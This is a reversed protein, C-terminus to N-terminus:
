ADTPSPDAATVEIGWSAHFSGGPPLAIIDVGSRLANPPCTMPEVAVAARHDDPALWDGTYCMVHAFVAEGWVVVVGGGRAPTFRARWRGDAEAVLDTFSDNFRVGALPIGAALSPVASEEVPEAGVPLMREDLVLHRRAPLSLRSGDLGAPGPALYPHFGLGFPATENGPNHATTAVTLTGPGVSYEVEIELWWPYAPQPALRCSGRVTADDLRAISWLRWCVLGHIANHWAPEDIAAQGVRGGFEYTGDALRNPWPALVQGRGGACLQDAAFGWVVPVGDVDFSRLTAGVETVTATTTGSTVAYQEGSPYLVVPLTGTFGTLSLHYAKRPM